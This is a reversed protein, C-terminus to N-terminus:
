SIRVCNPAASSIKYGGVKKPPAPLAPDFV